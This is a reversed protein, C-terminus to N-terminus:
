VIVAACPFYGANSALAEPGNAGSGSRKKSLISMEGSAGIVHLAQLEQEPAKEPKGENTECLHCQAAEAPFQTQKENVSWDARATPPLTQAQSPDQIWPCSDIPNFPLGYKHAPINYLTNTYQFPMPQDDLPATLLQQTGDSSRHYDSWPPVSSSSSQDPSSESPSFVFDPVLLIQRGYPPCM